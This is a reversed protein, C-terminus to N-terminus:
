QATYIIGTNSAAVLVAVGFHKNNKGITDAISVEYCGMSVLERVLVAVQMKPM